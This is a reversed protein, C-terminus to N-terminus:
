NNFSRLYEHIKDKIVSAKEDKNESELLNLIRTLPAIQYIKFSIMMAVEAAKEYDKREIYAECIEEFSRDRLLSFLDQVSVLTHIEVARKLDGKEMLDNYIVTIFESKTFDCPIMNLFVIALDYNNSCTLEMFFNDLGHDESFENFIVMAAEFAMRYSKTKLFSESLDTLDDIAENEDPNLKAEEILAARFVDDLFNIKPVEDFKNLAEVLTDKYIPDETNKFIDQTFKIISDRGECKKTIHEFGNRLKVILASLRSKDKELEPKLLLNFYDSINVFISADVHGKLAKNLLKCKNLENKASYSFIKILM